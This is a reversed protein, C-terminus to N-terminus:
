YGHTEWFGLLRLLNAINIDHLTLHIFKLKWKIREENLNQEEDQAVKIM